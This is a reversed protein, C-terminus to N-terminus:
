IMMAIVHKNNRHNRHTYTSQSASRNRMVNRNWVSMVRTKYNSLNKMRIEYKIKEM